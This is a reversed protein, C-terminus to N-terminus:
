QASSVITIQHALIEYSESGQDQSGGEISVGGSVYDGIKLTEYPVLGGDKIFTTLGNFSARLALEQDNEKLVFGEATKEVVEGSADAYISVLLAGAAVDVSIPTTIPQPQAPLPPYVQPEGWIGFFVGLVLSTFGVALFSVRNM